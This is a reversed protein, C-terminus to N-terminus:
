LLLISAKIILIPNPAGIVIILFGLITDTIILAGTNLCVPFVTACANPLTDSDADAFSRTVYMWPMLLM